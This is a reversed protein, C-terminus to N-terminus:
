QYRSQMIHAACQTTLHIAFAALEVTMGHHDLFCAHVHKDSVDLGVTIQGQDSSSDSM